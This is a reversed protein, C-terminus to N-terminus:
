IHFPFIFVNMLFFAKAIEFVKISKATLNFTNTILLFVM